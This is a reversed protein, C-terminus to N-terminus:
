EVRTSLPIDSFWANSSVLLNMDEELRPPSIVPIPLSNELFWQQPHRAGRGVDRRKIREQTQFPFLYTVEAVNMLNIFPPDQTSTRSCSGRTGSRSEPSLAIMQCTSLSM